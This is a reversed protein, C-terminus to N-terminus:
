EIWNQADNNLYLQAAGNLGSNTISALVAGAAVSGSVTLGDMTATGTVDIGTATTALKVANSAHYLKLDGTSTDAMQRM